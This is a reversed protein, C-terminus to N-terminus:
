PTPNPHLLTPQTYLIYLIAPLIDIPRVEQPFTFQLYYTDNNYVVCLLSMGFLSCFLFVRLSIGMNEIYMTCKIAMRSDSSRPLRDHPHDPGTIADSLRIIHPNNSM